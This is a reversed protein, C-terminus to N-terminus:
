SRPEPRGLVLPALRRRLSSVGGLAGAATLRLRLERRIAPLPSFRICLSLAVAGAAVEAAFTVLNPMTSVLAHRVAAIAVAVGAAAFLAPAYSTWVEAMTVGVVRRMVFLYGAHRIIEAAAVAAAYVWIGHSRNAVAVVLLTALVAIYAAQVGLSRYLDARAEAVTQSLASIVSCAAALAFWPVTTAAVSWQRGLVVLVLEQAAVAMGACLPFVIISGLALVSLYARHLRTEDHQIRSLHPFLVNTLAATLYWRLPQFALYYGRSYQGLIATDAYRGVTYTDLNAGVYDLLHASTLRIGYGYVERYPERRLVPRLPHRLLAYQWVMQSGSSVLAGVVLSWVGAGLLALGVGVVLYGLVYTVFTIVSLERFRHERRLLGLGVMALGEFLFTIGLLRLVPPLGPARFLEGFLPALVWVLGFCLVGIGIGAASAARIDDRTLVPKQVLASALGMRVFFQAFLVVLQALAMLGFAVPDVLRSMTMTYAVNALLVAGYGVSSWRLGSAAQATLSPEGRADTGDVRQEHAEGTAM